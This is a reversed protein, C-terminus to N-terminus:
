NWTEFLCADSHVLVKFCSSTRFAALAMCVLAINCGHAPCLQAIRLLNWHPHPHVSVWQFVDHLLGSLLSSVLLTLKMDFFPLRRQAVRLLSWHTHPHVSVRQFVDHLLGCLLSSVLLTVSFSNTEHWWFARTASCGIVFKLPSLPSCECGSFRRTSPWFHYLCLFSNTEHWLFATCRQAFWLLNSHPHPQGSVLQFVHHLLGSATYVCFLTLKM